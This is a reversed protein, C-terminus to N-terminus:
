TQTSSSQVGLKSDIKPILTICTNNIENILRGSHFFARVALCVSGGVITWFHQFFEILFGDTVPSEHSALYFVAVRIEKNSM